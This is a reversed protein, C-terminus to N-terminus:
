KKRVMFVEHCGETPARNPGDVWYKETWCKTGDLRKYITIGLQPVLTGNVMRYSTMERNYCMVKVARSQPTWPMVTGCRPCTIEM